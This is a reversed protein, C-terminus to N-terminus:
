KTGDSFSLQCFIYLFFFSNTKPVIQCNYIKEHFSPLDGLLIFPFTKNRSQERQKRTYKKVFSTCFIAGNTLNDTMFFRM